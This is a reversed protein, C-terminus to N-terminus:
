FTTMCFCLFTGKYPLTLWQKESHCEMPKITKTAIRITQNILLGGRRSLQKEEGQSVRTGSKLCLTWWHSQCHSLKVTLLNNAQECDSSKPIGQIDASILYCFNYIALQAKSLKQCRKRLSQHPVSPWFSTQLEQLFSCYADGPQPKSRIWCAPFALLPTNIYTHKYICTYSQAVGPKLLTQRTLHPALVDSVKHKAQVGPQSYINGGLMFSHGAEAVSSLLTPIRSYPTTNLLVRNLRVKGRRKKHVEKCKQHKNGRSSVWRQLSVAFYSSQAKRHARLHPLVPLPLQCLLKVESDSPPRTSPNETCPRQLYTPSPGQAKPQPQAKGCCVTTVSTM